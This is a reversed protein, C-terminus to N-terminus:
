GEGLVAVVDLDAGWDVDGVGGASIGLLAESFGLTRNDLTESVGEHHVAAVVTFLEHRDPDNGMGKLDYTWGVEM